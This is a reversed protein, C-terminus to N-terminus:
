NVSLNTHRMIASDQLDIEPSEEVTPDNLIEKLEVTSNNLAPEAGNKRTINMKTKNNKSGEQIAGTDRKDAM